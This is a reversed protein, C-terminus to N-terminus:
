ASIKSHLEYAGLFFLVISDSGKSLIIPFRNSMTLSKQAFWIIIVLKAFLQNNSKSILTFDEEMIMFQLLFREPKWKNKILVLLMFNISELLILLSFLGVLLSPSPFPLFFSPLPCSICHKSNSPNITLAQPQFLWLLVLSSMLYHVLSSM